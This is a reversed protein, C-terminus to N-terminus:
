SKISRAVATVIQPIIANGLQKYKERVTGALHWDDPFGMLRRCEILDLSRAYSGVQFGDVGGGTVAPLTPAPYAPDYVTLGQKKNKRTKVLYGGTKAFGGGGAGTLTRGPAAPDKVRWWGGWASEKDSALITPATAAPDYVISGSHQAPQKRPIQPKIEAVRRPSYRRAPKPQPLFELQAATKKRSEAGVESEDRMIEEVCVPPQKSQPATWWGGRTAVIFLRKRIQPIGWHAANIVAWNIQPFGAKTLKDLVVAFEAGKNLSKLAPVNELILGKKIKLSRALRVIHFFVAGRSDDFGKRNGSVSFSQCPFGAAIYDATPLDGRKLKTIDGHLKDGFNLRYSERATEDIECGGVCKWNLQELGRRFGGIGACFDLFTTTNTAAKM